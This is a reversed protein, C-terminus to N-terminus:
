QSELDDPKEELAVMLSAKATKHSITTEPHRHIHSVNLDMTLNRSQRTKQSPKICFLEFIILDEDVEATTRTLTASLCALRPSM